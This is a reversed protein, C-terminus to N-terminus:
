YSAIQRISEVTIVLKDRVTQWTPWEGPALEGDYHLRPQLLAGAPPTAATVNEVTIAYRLYTQAGKAIEAQAYGFVSPLWADLSGGYVSLDTNLSFMETYTKTEKWVGTNRLTSKVGLTFTVKM